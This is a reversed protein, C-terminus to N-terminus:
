KNASGPDGPAHRSPQSSIRLHCSSLRKRGQLKTSIRGRSLSSGSLLRGAYAGPCSRRRARWREYDAGTDIDSLADTLRVSAYGDLNALVDALAHPTSWRVDAFMRAVIQRPARPRRRMGVLWFGGDDAPGIAVEATALARFAREIHIRRLEPIDGGILVVPGRPAAVLLRAMRTGLDGRGQDLRQLHRPWTPNGRTPSPTVTLWTRWTRGTGVQSLLSCITDRQFKWAAVAGIDKALRSKVTGLQPARVFVVLHRDM